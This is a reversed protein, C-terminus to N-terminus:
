DKTQKWTKGILTELFGIEPPNINIELSKKEASFKPFIDWKPQYNNSATCCYDGLTRGLLFIEQQYNEESGAYIFKCKVWNDKKAM